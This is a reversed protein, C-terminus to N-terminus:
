LLINMDVSKQFLYLLITYVVINCNNNKPM